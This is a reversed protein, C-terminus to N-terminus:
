RFFPNDPEPKLLAPAYHVVNITGDATARGIAFPKHLHHNVRDMMIEVGSPAVIRRGSLAAKVSDPEVTGAERVADCWLHFGIWTAEMPDDTLADPRGTFRQWDAIFDRNQPTDVSMLYNWAVYHGKLLDAGILAAENEGISFAM